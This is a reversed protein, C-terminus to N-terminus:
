SYIPGNLYRTVQRQQDILADLPRYGLTSLRDWSEGGESPVLLKYYAGPSLDNAPTIRHVWYPGDSQQPIVLGELAEFKGAFADPSKEDLLRGSLHRRLESADRYYPVSRVLTRDDYERQEFEPLPRLQIHNSEGLNFVGIWPFQVSLLNTYDDWHAGQGTAKRPTYVAYVDHHPVGKFIVSAFELVDACGTVQFPEKPLGTMIQALHDDVCFDHRPQDASLMM